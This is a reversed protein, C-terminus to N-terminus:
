VPESLRPQIDSIAAAAILFVVAAPVRLRATLTTSVLALWLGGACVAVVVAFDSIEAM